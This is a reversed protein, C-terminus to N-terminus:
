SNLLRLTPQIAANPTLPTSSMQTSLGASFGTIQEQIYILFTDSSWRGLIKITHAPVGGLHLAMAGGARLSHSSIDAPTINYRALGLVQVTNKLATTIDTVTVQKAVHKHGTFYTGLMTTPDSTHQRIHHVRRIIAAIPCTVDRTAEQHIVQNRRGNKQNSIRLTAATCQSLLTQLPLTSCLVQTHNWLTVDELRFQITRRRATQTTQTYEGVRLLYFWAITCLDHIAQYRPNNDARTVNLYKIAIHPLALKRKPSPDHRRYNEIQRKLIIHRQGKEDALPDPQGDLMHTQSIARLALLVTQASVQKNAPQHQGARIFAAFAGLLALRTPLPYNSLIPQHMPFTNQLFNQWHTWFRFRESETAAIVGHSTATTAAIFLAKAANRKATPVTDLLTLLRLIRHAFHCSSSRLKNAWAVATTNDCWIAVSAHHLTATPVAAELVLHHALITFLELTNISIHSRQIAQIIDPPWELSWVIPLLPQAAGFWVGGAGWSTSADAWGQYAPTSTPLLEHVSIPRAHLQQILLHWDQLLTLINSPLTVWTQHRHQHLFMDLEGLLPKGTVIANSLWNLKGQLKVLDKMPVRRRRRLTSIQSTIKQFKQDTISVTRQQGNLLWGLVEKTTSWTGESALKKISIPDEM